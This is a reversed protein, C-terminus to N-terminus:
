DLPHTPLLNWELEPCNESCQGEMFTGISGWSIVTILASEPVLTLCISVFEKFHGESSSCQRAEVCKFSMQMFVIQNQETSDLHLDRFLDTSILYLM